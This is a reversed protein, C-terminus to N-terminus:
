PALTKNHLWTAAGKFPAGSACRLFGAGQRLVQRFCHLHFLLSQRPQHVSFFCGSSVVLCCLFAVARALKNDAVARAGLQPFGAPCSASRVRRVGVPRLLLPLRVSTGTAFLGGAGCSVPSCWLRRALM